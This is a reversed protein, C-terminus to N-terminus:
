NVARAATPGRHEASWRVPVNVVNSFCVTFQRVFSGLHQLFYAAAARLGNAAPRHVHLSAVEAREHEVAHIAVLGDGTQGLDVADEVIGLHM